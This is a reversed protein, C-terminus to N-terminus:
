YYLESIIHVLLFTMLAASLPIHTWLWQRLLRQYALQRKLREYRDTLIRFEDSRNDPSSAIEKELHARQDILVDQRFTDNGMRAVVGPIKEYLVMGAIGSVFTLVFVVTLAVSITGVVAFGAHIGVLVATVIGLAVHSRMWGDLRGISRHYQRKRVPLLMLVVILATALYGTVYGTLSGGRPISLVTYGAYYVGLALCIGTVWYLGNRPLLYM